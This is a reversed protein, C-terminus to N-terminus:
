AGVAVELPYRRTLRSVLGLAIPALLMNYVGVALASRLIVTGTHGADGLLGALIGFGVTFAASAGFTVFVPATFSDLALYPKLLGVAYGVALLVLTSTGVATQSLQLDLLMGAAFGVRVGSLPGEHMAIAVTLLLLLNPLHGLLQLEAFVTTQLVVATVLLLTVAAVRAIM